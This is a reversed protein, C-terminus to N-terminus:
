QATAIAEAIPRIVQPIVLRSVVDEAIERQRRFSAVADIVQDPQPYRRVTFYVSIPENDYQGTRVQYSNCRTEIAIRAQMYCGEDIAVVLSPEFEVPRLGEGLLGSFPSGALLAEAVLEDRNGTYDLNFGFMVDLAEIDLGGIGLYYVSRELLWEHLGAADAMGPPNFHGACLRRRHIEAWQYSGAERDAELCYEGDDRRFFGAMSPFQKQVAEFFHLVTERSDPLQMTTELNLNVFFDDAISSFDM